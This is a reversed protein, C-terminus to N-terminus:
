IIKIPLLAYLVEENQAIIIPKFSYANIITVIINLLTYNEWALTMTM